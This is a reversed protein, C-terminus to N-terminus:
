LDWRMWQKYILGEVKTLGCSNFFPEQSLELLKQYSKTSERNDIVYDNQSFRDRSGSIINQSMPTYIRINIIFGLNQVLYIVTGWSLQAEQITHTLMLMDDLYVIMRFNIKILFSLPTKLLKTFVQPALGLGFCLCVFEYITETM